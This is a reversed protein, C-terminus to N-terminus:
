LKKSSINPRYDGSHTPERATGRLGVSEASTSVLELGWWWTVASVRVVVCTLVKLLFVM